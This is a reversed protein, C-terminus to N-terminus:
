GDCTGSLFRSSCDSFFNSYLEKNSLDVSTSGYSIQPIEFVRLLNAVAISVDSVFPGIVGALPAKRNTLTYTILDKARDAGITQSRCTDYVKAGLTINPLLSSDNNIEQIAFLMAALYQFGPQPDIRGCANETEKSRRHM